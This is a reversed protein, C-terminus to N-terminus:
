PVPGRDPGIQQDTAGAAIVVVGHDIAGAHLLVQTIREGSVFWVIAHNGFQYGCRTVHRRIGLRKVTRSVEQDILDVVFVSRLRGRRNGFYKQAQLDLACLAVVVREIFPLLLLVPLHVGEETLNASTAAPTGLHVSGGAFQDIHIEAALTVVNLFRSEEEILAITFQFDSIRNKNVAGLDLAVAFDAADIAAAFQGFQHHARLVQFLRHDIPHPSVEHAVSKGLRDVVQSRM